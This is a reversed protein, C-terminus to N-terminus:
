TVAGLNTVDRRLNTGRQHKFYTTKGKAAKDPHHTLHRRPKENTAVM